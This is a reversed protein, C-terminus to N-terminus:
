TRPSFGHLLYEHGVVVANVGFAYPRERARQALRAVLDEDARRVPLAAGGPVRHRHVARQLDLARVGRHQSPVGVSETM